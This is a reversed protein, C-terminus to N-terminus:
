NSQGTSRRETKKGPNPRLAVSLCQGDVVGSIAVIVVRSGNRKGLRPQAAATRGVEISREIPRFLRTHVTVVPTVVIIVTRERVGIVVVSVGILVDNSQTGSNTQTCTQTPRVVIEGNITFHCVAVVFQLVPYITATASLRAKTMTSTMAPITPM